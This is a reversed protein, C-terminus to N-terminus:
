AKCCTLVSEQHIYIFLTKFREHRLDRTYLFWDMSKWFLDISQNRYSLFRLWSLTLAKCSAHIWPSINRSQSLIIDWNVTPYTHPMYAYIFTNYIVSICGVRKPAIRMSSSHQKKNNSHNNNNSSRRLLNYCCCCCCCCPM